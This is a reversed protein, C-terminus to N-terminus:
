QNEDFQRIDIYELKLYFVYISNKEILSIDLYKM